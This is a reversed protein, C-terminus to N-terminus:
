LNGIEVELEVDGVDLIVEQRDLEEILYELERESEVMNVLDEILRSAEECEYEECEGLLAEMDM